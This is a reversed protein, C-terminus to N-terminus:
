CIKMCYDQYNDFMKKGQFVVLFVIVPRMMLMNKDNLHLGKHFLDGMIVQCSGYEEPFASRCCPAPASAGFLQSPYMNPTFYQRRGAMASTTLAVLVFIVSHRM